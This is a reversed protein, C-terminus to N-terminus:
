VGAVEALAQFKAQWNRVTSVSLQLTESITKLPVDLATYLLLIYAERPDLTSGALITGSM